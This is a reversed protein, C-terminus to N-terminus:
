KSLQMLEGKAKTLDLEALKYNLLQQNYATEAERLAVESSLLDNIQAIGEKYQLETQRYVEKALEKNEKQIKLQQWSIRLTNEANQYEIQMMNVNQQIDEELQMMKVKSQKTKYHTKGSSFIPITLSLGITNSNNWNDSFDFETNAAQYNFQGFAALTPLNAAKNMEIELTQMEKQKSLLKYESRKAIDFNSNNDELGVDINKISSEKINLDQSLPMGAIVKLYNEQMTIGNKLNERQTNLNTINVKVRNLDTVKIMDNEYQLKMTKYLTDLMQYNANLINIQSRNILIKYYNQSITYILQEQQNKFGLESLEIGKRATKMGTWYEQSYLLQTVQVGTSLMYLNDIDSLGALQPQMEPPVMAGAQQPIEIGGLMYDTLGVSGEIQPLGGSRIEKQKYSANEKDLQAKRIQRSNKLSYQILNNLDDQADANISFLFLSLIILSFKRM